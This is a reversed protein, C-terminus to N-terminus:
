NRPYFRSYCAVKAVYTKIEADTNAAMAEAEASPTRTLLRVQVQMQYVRIWDDLFQRTLRQVDVPISSELM